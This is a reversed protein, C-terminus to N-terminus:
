IRQLREIEDLCEHLAQEMVQEVMQRNEYTDPDIDVLVRRLEDIRDQTM